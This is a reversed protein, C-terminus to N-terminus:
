RSWRIPINPLSGGDIRGVHITAKMWMGKTKRRGWPAHGVFM